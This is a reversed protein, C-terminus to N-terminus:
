VVRIRPAAARERLSARNRGDRPHLAYGFALRLSLPTNLEELKTVEHTVTRALASLRQEPDEGPDPLLATFEAPGTQALVDFVRLHSRLTEGIRRVILALHGEDSAEQILDSNELSCHILVVRDPRGAARVIEEGIRQHLLEESALGEVEERPPAPPPTSELLLEESLAREVYALIQEFLLSDQVHFPGPRFSEESLKNYIALTGVLRGKKHLPAALLSRITPDIGSFGPDSQIERIQLMADRKAADCSALKDLHILSPPLSEGRPGSCGRIFFRSTDTDRLRFIVFEAELLIPLASTTIRVVEGDNRAALLRLGLEGVARTKRLQGEVQEERELQAIEDGAAVTIERLVGELLSSDEQRSTVQVTLVGVQLNGSTIPLAAYALSGDSWRLLIPDGSEAVQGDLGSGAALELSPTGGEEESLSTATLAFRDRNPDHLYIAAIGSAAQEATFRCLARLRQRLPIEARFLERVKQAVDYRASLNRLRDFEQAKAILAADLDALQQVFRLDSNSFVDPQTSHHLNLVGLLRGNAQLPVSIASVVNNREHVVHFAMHDAHGRLLIPSAEAAVKGAIGEGLKVRIKPWLEKEIGVAMRVRLEQATPDLLMLSGQDAGTASIAIQLMREFLEDTDITFDYSEVVEQLTHILDSKHDAHPDRFGWLLRALLPSLIEVGSEVLESFRDRLAPTIHSDVIAHLGTTTSFLRVDSTILELATAEIPGALRRLLMHARGIDPTYIGMVEIDPNTLLHPLLPLSEETVGYVAIRKRKV